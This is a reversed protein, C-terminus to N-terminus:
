SRKSRMLCLHTGQRKERWKAEREAYATKFEDEDITLSRHDLQNIFTVATQKCAHTCAHIYIYAHTIM